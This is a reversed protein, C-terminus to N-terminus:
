LKSCVEPNGFDKYSYVKGDSLKRELTQYKWYLFDSIKGCHKDMRHLSRYNPKKIDIEQREVEVFLKTFKNFFLLSPGAILM